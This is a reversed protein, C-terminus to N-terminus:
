NFSMDCTITYDIAGSDGPALVLPTALVTRDILVNNNSASTGTSSTCCSAVGTVYGIESITKTNGQSSTNTITFTFKMYLVGNNVGRVTNSLTISVGSTIDTEMKYDNETPATTGSGFHFGANTANLQIATQNVLIGSLWSVWREQNATNRISETPFMPKATNANNVNTWVPVTQLLQKCAKTIM